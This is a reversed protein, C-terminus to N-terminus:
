TEFSINVPDLRQVQRQMWSIEPKAVGGQELIAVRKELDEHVIKTVMELRSTQLEHKLNEIQTQMNDFRTEVNLNLKKIEKFLDKMSPEDDSIELDLKKSVDEATESFFRVELNATNGGASSDPLDPPFAVRPSTPIGMGGSGGLGEAEVEMRGGADGELRAATEPPKGGPSEEPGKKGNKLIGPRLESLPGQAKEPSQAPTPM